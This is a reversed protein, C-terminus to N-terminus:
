PQLPALCQSKVVASLKCPMCMNIFLKLASGVKGSWKGAQLLAAILIKVNQQALVGRLFSGHGPYSILFNFHNLVSQIVSRSLSQSEYCGRLHEM